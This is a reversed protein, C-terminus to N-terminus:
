EFICVSILVDRIRRAANLAPWINGGPAVKNPKITETNVEAANISKQRNKQVPM